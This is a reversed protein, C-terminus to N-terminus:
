CQLKQVVSTGELECARGTGTNVRKSYISHWFRLGVRAVMGWPRYLLFCINSMEGRGNGRETVEVPQDWWGGSM